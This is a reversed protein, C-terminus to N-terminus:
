INGKRQNANWTRWVDIVLAETKRKAEIHKLEMVTDRLNEIAEVYADSALAQENRAASSKEGSELGVRAILHKLLYEGSEKAAYFSALEEDTTVLYDLAKGVRDHSPMSM